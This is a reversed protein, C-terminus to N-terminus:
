RRVVGAVGGASLTALGTLVAPLAMGGTAALYRPAWEPGFKEKYQRLGQFNYFQEGHRFLFAGARSWFPALPHEELGAFPAMGLNFWRYGQERAWLMLKAFLYDMIGNPADSVHRMLDVSAEERNDWAWITAFAVAREGQRAVAVPFRALYDERFSGLSFARERIRKAALWASSVPALEPLLQRTGERPAVQFSCGDRELRNVVYRLGRREAGELTFGPLAVRAEEGIKMATLGLDLYLPLSSAGVEYFAVPAGHRDALARLEWALDRWREEPGVPDGMSVYAGAVGYMIFADGAPSLLFRKDGLFALSALARPSARVAGEILGWDVPRPEPYSPGPRLLVWVASVILTVVVGTLARLSRPADGRLTFRWWLQQSVELHRHSYLTLWVTGAVVAAVAAIWAPSFTRSSLTSVRYFHRRSPLLALLVIGMIAAEEYDFGKLLSFVMGAALLIAAAVYAADVRRQLGRALLLLGLGALSGLFHSGEIVPLPVLRGLLRMRDRVAPTAGSFLLVAGAFLTALSLFPPVITASWRSFFRAARAATERRHLLEYLALSLAAIGLPALYYVVRYLTLAALISPVDARGSLLLLLITDFVGLGGPVQSLMGATLALLYIGLFAAFSLGMSRPLLAYLTAGALAWEAISAGLQFPYFRASPLSIELGGVRLPKRVLLALPLYGAALALFVIGLPRAAAFPLKM